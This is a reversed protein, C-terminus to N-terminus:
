EQSAIVQTEYGKTSGWLAIWLLSNPKGEEPCIFSLSFFLSLVWLTMYSLRQLFMRGGRSYWVDNTICFSGMYSPFSSCLNVFILFHSRKSGPRQTLALSSTPGCQFGKTLQKGLVTLGTIPTLQYVKEEDIDNPSKLDKTRDYVSWFWWM